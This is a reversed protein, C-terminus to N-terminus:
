EKQLAKLQYLVDLAEKPSLGDPNISHLKELIPSSKAPAATTTANFLPLDDALRSLTASKEGSQLLDLVTQARAIM